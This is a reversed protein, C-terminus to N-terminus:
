LLIVTALGLFALFGFVDTATTIFITASSAPDKGLRKMIIPISTGAIAAILLNIVMALGLVLGLKPNNNWLMAIGAALIGTIIGNVIGAISEKVIMKKATPKDIEGLALGRVTVALTQTAANGGMGAVVPLYAALIVLKSITDEFLGVVSAALFATFMNIILWGYRYKVKTMASDNIDEETKVGAFKRLAKSNQSQIVRLIDDTYIVGLVSENNDLVIVKSHPHKKLTEIIKEEKEDYRVSPTKKIFKEIKATKKALVFNHIALEGAFYGKEVVLVAPIKGTQKEHDRIMESVEKVTANKDAMIYNLSMIGAASKPDFKFLFKIKEQINESLAKLVRGRKLSRLPRIVRTAKDPDLFNTIEVIEQVKLQKLIGVRAAKSMALLAKGQENLLITQFNKLRNKRGGLMSKWKKIKERTM